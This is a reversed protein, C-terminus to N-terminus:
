QVRRSSKETLVKIHALQYFNHFQEHVIFIELKNDWTNLSRFYIFCIDIFTKKNNYFEDEDNLWEWVQTTM